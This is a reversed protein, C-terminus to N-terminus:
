VFRVRQQLCAISDTRQSATQGQRLRSFEAAALRDMSAQEAADTVFLVNTIVDLIASYESSTTSLHFKPFDVIMTDTLEDMKGAPGPADAATRVIDHYYPIYQLKAECKKVVSTVPNDIASRTPPDVATVSEPTLWMAGQGPLGAFFRAHLRVFVFPAVYQMDELMAFWSEKCDLRGQRVVLSHQRFMVTGQAASVTIGTTTEPACFGLQLRYALLVIALVLSFFFLWYFFWVQPRILQISIDNATIDDDSFYSRAPATAHQESLAVMESKSALLRDLLSTRAPAQSVPAPTPM